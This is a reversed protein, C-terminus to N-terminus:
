LLSKLFEALKPKVVSLTLLTVVGISITMYRLKQHALKILSIEKNIDDKIEMLM